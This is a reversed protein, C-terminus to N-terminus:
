VASCIQGSVIQTLPKRYMYNIEVTEWTTVTPKPRNKNSHKRSLNGSTSSTM